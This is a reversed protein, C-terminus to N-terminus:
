PCSWPYTDGKSRNLQWQLPQLNSIDDSGNLAKPEIHDIEWGFEVEKGHESYKMVKGCIDYRWVTDDYAPIARGKSWVQLKLAEDASAYQYAM